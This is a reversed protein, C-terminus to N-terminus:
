RKKSWTLFDKLVQQILELNYVKSNNMRLHYQQTFITLLKESEIIASAEFGIEAFLRKLELYEKADLSGFM